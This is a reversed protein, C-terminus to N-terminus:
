NIKDKVPTEERRLLRLDDVLKNIEERTRKLEEEETLRRELKSLMCECPVM